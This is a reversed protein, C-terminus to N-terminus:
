VKMIRVEKKFHLEVLISMTNAEEIYLHIKGALNALHQLSINWVKFVWVFCVLFVSFSKGAIVSVSLINIM